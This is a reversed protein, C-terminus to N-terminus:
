RFRATMPESIAVFIRFCNKSFCMSMVKKKKLDFGNLEAVQPRAVDVCSFFFLLLALILRGNISVYVM